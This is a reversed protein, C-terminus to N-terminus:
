ILKYPRAPVGKVWEDSAVDRTVVAGAAIMARPGIRVGQIVVCGTGLHAGPGVNVEGSLTAGPAIHCAEGIVCDHDISAKTNVIAFPGIQTGPQIIAGAHIQASPDVSSEPAVWSFPHSFGIVNYGHALYNMSVKKLLSNDTNPAVSGLGLVIDIQEPTFKEMLAEDTMIAGPMIPNNSVDPDLCTYAVIKRGLALLASTVVKAHGGYGIIAVSRLEKNM